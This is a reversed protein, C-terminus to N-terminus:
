QYTAHESLAPQDCSTTRSDLKAQPGARKGRVEDHNMSAGASVIVMFVGVKLSSLNNCDQCKLSM